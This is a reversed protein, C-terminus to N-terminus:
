KDIYLQWHRASRPQEEAIRRAGVVVAIMDRGPLATTGNYLMGEAYNNNITAWM